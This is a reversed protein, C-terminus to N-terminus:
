LRHWIFDNLWRIEEERDNNLQGENVMILLIHLVDKLISGQKFGARILDNGNIKLDKENRAIGEKIAEKAYEKAKKAVDINEKRLYCLDFFYSFITEIDLPYTLILLGRIFDKDWYENFSIDRLLLLKCIIHNSETDLKIFTRWDYFSDDMEKLSFLAALSALNNTSSKFDLSYYNNEVREKINKLSPIIEEYFYFYEKISSFLGDTKAIDMLEMLIREKAIDNIEDKLELIAEKTKEEIKFHLRSSFRLARLMRLADEHFREKPDGIARIIGKKLDEFGQHYDYIKGDAYYFANITFDRRKSDVEADTIFRVKDPHRFDSYGSESRFTTIEVPYGKFIVRVTGHIVGSYDINREGFCAATESPTASTTVDYDHPTNGLLFDRVAGGVVYAKYGHSGLTDLAYKVSHPLPIEKEIIDM